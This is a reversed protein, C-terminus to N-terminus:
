KRLRSKKKYPLKKNYMKSSLSAIILIILFPLLWVIFSTELVWLTARSQNNSLILNPGLFGLWICQCWSGVRLCESLLFNWEHNTSGDKTSTWCWGNCNWWCDQLSTSFFVSICTFFSDFCLCLRHHFQCWSVAHSIRVHKGRSCRFARTFGFRFTLVYRQARWIHLLCTFLSGYQTFHRCWYPSVRIRCTLRRHHYPSQCRWLILM